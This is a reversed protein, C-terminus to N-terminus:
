EARDLVLRDDEIRYIREGMILKQEGPGGEIRFRPAPGQQVTTIQITYGDLVTRRSLIHARGDTHGVRDGEGEFRGGLDAPRRRQPQQDQGRGFRELLAPPLGEQQQQPRAAPPEQEEEGGGLDRVNIIVLKAGSAGTMDAVFTGWDTEIRVAHGDELEDFRRESGVPGTFDGPRINTDLGLGMIIGGGGGTTAAIVDNGGTWGSRFVHYNETPGRLYRPLVEDPNQPEEGIPWFLLAFVAHHPYRMADYTRPERPEIENNYFWLLARRHEEPVIGFGRAFDGGSSMGGRPFADSAYIGRQPNRLRNNERVVEYMWKSIIWRAGTFPEVFDRGEAVRLNILYTVLGTNASLRGGHHGEFFWASDGYGVRLARKARQLFVRHARTTVEDDTGPDGLIALIATGAGGIWAGYHNSHPSHQGGTTNFLLDFEVPEAMAREDGFSDPDPHHIREQIRRAVEQRFEEDWAHYCLDYAMAIAAYSSGARLRGGPRVWSYRQDRDRIGEFAKEVAERALDAYKQEETLQYLMGFGMGHWLTYAGIPLNRRGGGYASDATQYDEPMADGGGLLKRLREVIKQGEPTQARRRIDEIDDARFLLRPHEGPEFPQVGEVPEPWLTQRRQGSVEGSVPWDRFTGTYTGTFRDGDRQLRLEYRGEGGPVWPDANVTVEITMRLSGDDRETFQTLEAEHDMQNFWRSRDDREGGPTRMGAWGTFKRKWQGDREGLHLVLNRRQAEPPPEQETFLAGELELDVDYYFTRDIEFAAAPAALLFSGVLAVALAQLPNALNCSHNGSRNM